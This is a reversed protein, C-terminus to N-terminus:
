LSQAKSAQKSAQKQQSKQGQQLRITTAGVLKTALLNPPDECEKWV